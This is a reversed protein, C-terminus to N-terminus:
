ILAIGCMGFINMCIVYVTDGFENGKNGWLWNVGLFLNIFCFDICDTREGLFNLECLKLSWGM